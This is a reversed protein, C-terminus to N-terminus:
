KEQWSLVSYQGTTPFSPPPGYVLNNDFNLNRTAYGTGDTYAFGYRLDTAISGNLTLVSRYIYSNCGAPSFSNGANPDYYYRGVRGNQAILAADIQLNDESYLGASVDTQAILGIADTGDYRTYKLDNNVIITASASTFPKRAAVVTVRANNIQGDVWVDDEFFILGNAPMPIGLSSRSNWTFSAETDISYPDAYNTYSGHNGTRYGCQKQATVKRVDFTGNTNFHLHYGQANSPSFYAGGTTADNAMTNINSTIGTFNVQPVPFSRGAAFVDTRVPAAASSTTGTQPPLPDVPTVHTHVGFELGGTHDPDDYKDVSSSVLNHALGDFRIGKNSHVPGFIETGTGFRMVDNAVVAFQSFSPIGMKLEVTRKLSPRRNVWGTSQITVITSGTSPPIINLSYQGITTGTSDVYDHVYPGSNTTGDKYDNSVHALHWRYYNAGAEAIDLAYERDVREKTFALHALTYQTVATLVVVFMSSFVLVMLLSAGRQDTRHRQHWRCKM